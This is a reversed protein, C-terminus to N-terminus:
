KLKLLVFTALYVRGSSPEKEQLVRQIQYLRGSDGVVETISSMDKEMERQTYVTPPPIPVTSNHRPFQVTARFATSSPSDLSLVSPAGLRFSRKCFRPITFFFERCPSM